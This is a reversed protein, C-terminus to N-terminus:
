CDPITGTHNTNCGDLVTPCGAPTSVCNPLDAMSHCLDYQATQGCAIMDSQCTDAVATNCTYGLESPLCTTGPETVGGKIVAMQQNTLRTIAEKNLSLKGVLNVKKEM